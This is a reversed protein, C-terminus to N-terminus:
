ASGIQQWEEGTWQWWENNHWQVNCYPCASPQGMAIRLPQHCGPCLANPEYGYIRVAESDNNLPSGLSNWFPDCGAEQMQQYTEADWMRVIGNSFLRAAHMFLFITGGFALLFPFAWPAFIIAGVIGIPSCLLLLRLQILWHPTRDDSM